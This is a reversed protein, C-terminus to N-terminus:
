SSHAGVQIFAHFVWKRKGPQKLVYYLVAGGNNITQVPSESGCGALFIRKPSGEIGAPGIVTLTLAVSGSYSSNVVFIFCGQWDPDSHPDPLTIGWSFSGAIAPSVVYVVNGPKDVAMNYGDERIVKPPAFKLLGSFLPNIIPNFSNSM